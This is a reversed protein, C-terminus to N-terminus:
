RFLLLFLMNNNNDNDNDFYYYYYCYCYYYYYYYHDNNNNHFLISPIRLAIEWWMAVSIHLENESYCNGRYSMLVLSHLWSFSFLVRSWRASLRHSVSVRMRTLRWNWVSCSRIHYQIDWQSTKTPQGPQTMGGSGTSISSIKALGTCNEEQRQYTTKKQVWYKANWQYFTLKKKFWQRLTITTHSSSSKTLNM